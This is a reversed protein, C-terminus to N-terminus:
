KLTDMPWPWSTMAMDYRSLACRLPEQTIRFLMWKIGLHNSSNSFFNSEKPSWECSLKRKNKDLSGAFFMGMPMRLLHILNVFSGGPPRLAFRTLAKQKKELSLKSSNSEFVLDINNPKHWKWATM